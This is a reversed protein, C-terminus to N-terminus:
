FFSEGLGKEKITQFISAGESDMEVILPGWEKVELMWIAEPM